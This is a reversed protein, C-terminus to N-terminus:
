SFVQAFIPNNIFAVTTTSLTSDDTLFGDTNWYPIRGSTPATITYTSGYIVWRSGVSIYQLVVGCKPPVKYDGGHPTRIRNAATSNTDEHKLVLAQAAENNIFLFKGNSPNAFGTVTQASAGNFNISAIGTTSLNNITGTTTNTSASQVNFVGNITAGSSTNISSCSVQLATLNGGLLDLPTGSGSSILGYAKLSALLDTSFLQQVVPTTNFFGLKKSTGGKCLETIGESILSKFANSNPTNTAGSAWAGVDTETTSGSNFEKTDSTNYYQYSDAGTVASTTLEFYVLAAPTAASAAAWDNNDVTSTGTVDISTNNTTNIVRYGNLEATDYDSPATWSLDVRYYGGNNADAGSSATAAVPSFATYGAYAAYIEYSSNTGNSPKLLVQTIDPSGSATNDDKKTNTGIVDYSAVSDVVLVYGDFFSADSWSVDVNFTTTGDNISDTFSGTSPPGFYRTGSVDKFAAVSYNITQGNATYGGSGLDVQATGFGGPQSAAYGFITASAASANIGTHETGTTNAQISSYVTVGNVSRVTRVGYNKSGVGLSYGSAGLKFNATLAAPEPAVGNVEYFHGTAAPTPTGVGFLRDTTLRMGEVLNTKFVLDVLDTTGLFNTGAATGSNGGLKWARTDLFSSSVDFNITDTTANGTITITGDSSTFSITDAVGDSTPSTGNPVQFTTFASSPFLAPNVGGRYLRM